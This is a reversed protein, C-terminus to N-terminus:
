SGRHLANDFLHKSKTKISVKALIFISLYKSDLGQTGCMEIKLYLRGLTHMAMIILHSQVVTGSTGTHTGTGLGRQFDNANMSAASWTM